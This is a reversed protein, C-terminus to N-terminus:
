KSVYDHETCYSVQASQHQSINPAWPKTMSQRVLWLQSIGHPSTYAKARLRRLRQLGEAKGQVSCVLGIMDVGTRWDSNTCSM